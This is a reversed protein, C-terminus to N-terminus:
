HRHRQIAEVIQLVHRVIETITEEADQLREETTRESEVKSRRYALLDSVGEYNTSGQQQM